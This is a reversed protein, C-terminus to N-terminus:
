GDVGEMEVEPQRMDAGCNPCFNRPLSGDEWIEWNAQAFTKYCNLCYVRPPYGDMIHWGSKVNPRVDAAPIKYAFFQYANWGAVFDHDVFDTYEKHPPLLAKDIYEPM